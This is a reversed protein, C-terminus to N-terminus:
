ESRYEIDSRFSDLWDCFAFQSERSGFKFLKQGEIRKGSSEFCEVSVKHTIGGENIKKDSWAVVRV